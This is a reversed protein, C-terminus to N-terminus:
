RPPTVPAAALPVDRLTFPVEILTAVPGSCILRDPAAQGAKLAFTLQFEM